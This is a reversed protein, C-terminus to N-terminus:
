NLFALGGSCDVSTGSATYVVSMWRIRDAKRIEEHRLQQIQSMMTSSLGLAKVSKMSALM